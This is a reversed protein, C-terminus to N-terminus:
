FFEPSRLVMEFDLSLRDLTRFYSVENKKQLIYFFVFKLASTPSDEKPM